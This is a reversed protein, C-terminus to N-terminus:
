AALGAVVAVTVVVTTTWAIAGAALRLDLGYVHAVILTNIGSPMAAQVLYADPVDVILASLGLMLAPAVLLRLALM